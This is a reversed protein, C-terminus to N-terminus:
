TARVNVYCYYYIIFDFPPIKGDVLMISKSNEKLKSTNNEKIIEQRVYEYVYTRFPSIIILLSNFFLSM